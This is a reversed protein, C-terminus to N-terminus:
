ARAARVREEYLRDLEGRAEALARHAADLAAQDEASLHLRALYHATRGELERVTARIPGLLADAQQERIHYKVPEAM